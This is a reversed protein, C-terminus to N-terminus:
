IEELSTTPSSTSTELTSTSNELNNVDILLEEFLKETNNRYVLEIKKEVIRNFKDTAIITVINYGPYLLTPESFKSEENVNIRKGNLEIFSINKATGTIRVLPSETIMAGNEPSLVNVQPGAILIRSNFIAYGILGILLVVYFSNKIIKANNHKSM